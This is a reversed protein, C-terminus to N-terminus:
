FKLGEERAADALAKIRGHYKYGARDFCVEKIGAGLAKQAILSGVEKAGDKNTGKLKKERVESSLTSCGTIVRGGRDNVLQAYIHKESRFVVLRPREESGQMTKTIRKHRRERGVVRM